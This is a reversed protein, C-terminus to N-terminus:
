TRTPRIFSFLFGIGVTCIWQQYANGNTGDFFIQYVARGYIFTTSNLDYQLGIEPGAEFHDSVVDGYQFGVNGGIFPRWQHDGGFPIYFDVAGQTAGITASSDGISSYALTQRISLELNEFVYYGLGGSFGIAHDNFDRDSTGTLAFTFEWDGRQSQALARPALVCLLLASMLWLRSVNLQMRQAHMM